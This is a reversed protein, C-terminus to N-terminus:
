WPVGSGSVPKRQLDLQAQLADEIEQVKEDGFKNAVWSAVTFEDLEGYPTMAEPDAPDLGISGYAGASYVDDFAEITYHVTTIEGTALVRELNAVKWSFSTSM